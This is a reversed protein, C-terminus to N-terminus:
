TYEAPELIVALAEELAEATQALADLTSYHSQSKIRLPTELGLQPVQKALLLAHGL